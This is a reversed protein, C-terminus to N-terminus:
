FLVNFHGYQKLRRLIRRCTETLRQGDEPLYKQKVETVLSLIIQNTAAHRNYKNQKTNINNRARGLRTTVTSDFISRFM